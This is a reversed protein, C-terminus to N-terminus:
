GRSPVRSWSPRNDVSMLLLVGPVPVPVGGSRGAATRRWRWCGSKGDEVQGQDLQVFLLNPSLELSSAHGYDDVPMGLNRSWKVEGQFDLCAVDGNGFIAYVCSGDTVPTSAALLIDRDPTGPTGEDSASV